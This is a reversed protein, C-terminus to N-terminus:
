FEMSNDSQGIKIHKGKWNQELSRVFEEFVMMSKNLSTKKYDKIRSRVTGEMDGEKELQEELEKDYNNVEEILTNITPVTMPNFSDATKPNFPVCIKGTKPHVCFPAKLLHNMGKTVQIDLRPYCYHLLIEAYLIKRKRYDDGSRDKMYSKIQEWKEIPQTDKKIISSVESKIPEEMLSLFQKISEPSDFLGQSQVVLQGFKPEIVGMARQISSHIRDSNPLTVTKARGEGGNVVQLYEAVASRVPVTLVRASQDCVWCHIGRRGSFVWLLHSFGFDDRLATDLIQCAMSM